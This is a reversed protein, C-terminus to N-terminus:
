AECLEQAEAEELLERAESRRIPYGDVTYLYEARLYNFVGTPELDEDLHEVALFGPWDGPQRNDVVVPTVIALEQQHRGSERDFTWQNTFPWIYLKM